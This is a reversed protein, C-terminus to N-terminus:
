GDPADLRPAGAPEVDHSVGAQHVIEIRRRLIKLEEAFREGTPAALRLLARIWTIGPGEPEMSLSKATRM